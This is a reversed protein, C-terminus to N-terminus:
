GPTADAADPGADGLGAAADSPGSGADLPTGDCTTSGIAACVGGVCQLNYACYDAATCPQGQAIMAFCTGADTGSDLACYGNCQLYPATASVWGCAQGPQAMGGVPECVALYPDCLSLAGSLDCFAYQTDCTQGNAPLLDCTGTTAGCLTNGPCVSSDFCPEGRSVPTSCAYSTAGLASASCVLNDACEVGTCASGLPVQAVCTGCGADSFSCRGSACQWSDGCSGRNPITGGHPLCSAANTTSLYQECTMSGVADGCQEFLSPTAGTHPAGLTLECSLRAASVCSSLGGPYFYQLAALECKEEAACVKSAYDACASASSPMSGSGSGGCGSALTAVAGVVAL